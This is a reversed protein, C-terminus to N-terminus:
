ENEPICMKKKFIANEFYKEGKNNHTVNRQIQERKESWMFPYM